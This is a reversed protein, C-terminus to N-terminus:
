KNFYKLEITNLQNNDKCFRFDLNHFNNTVSLHNEIIKKKFYNINTIFKNSKCYSFWKYFDQIQFKKHNM